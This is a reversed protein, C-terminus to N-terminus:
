CRCTERQAPRTEVQGASDQDESWPSPAKPRCRKCWHVLLPPAHAGAADALCASQLLVVLTIQQLTMTLTPTSLSRSLSYIKSFDKLSHATLAQRAQALCAAYM